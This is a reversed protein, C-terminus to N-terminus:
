WDRANRFTGNYLQNVIKEKFYKYFNSIIATTRRITQELAKDVAKVVEAKQKVGLSVTQFEGTDEDPESDSLIDCYVRVYKIHNESVNVGKKNKVLM